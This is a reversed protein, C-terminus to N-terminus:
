ASRQYARFAQTALWSMAVALAALAGLRPWVVSWDTGASLGERSVVVAWDLPNYRAVTQLWAPALDPDMIASSLFVLPLSLLQSIGILANQDRALLAVAGSLAAFVVTLLAAAVFTLGIGVLPREVELARERLRPHTTLGLYNNSSLNVVSRGDFSTHARQEDDLVRLRRYLGQSKLAALEDALYQLPDRRATTTM